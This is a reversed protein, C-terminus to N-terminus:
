VDRFAALLPIRAARIAPLVGGLFGIALALVLGQVVLDPTFSFGFVVQTFGSGLTSTTVGAFLAWTAVAGLVGGIAALLLAETMTGIFAPLGGFGIARLTAVERMRSDVSAYMTNVAGALAGLSMLIALPYGLLLITDTTGSAEGAYHARETKVDLKLRPDNDSFAKLQALGAAPDALRARVTQFGAGRQFLGQIVPADGWIESEFVTGGADFVGVVTWDSGGLRVTAGFDFGAFERMVARGVVLENRGTEFMRGEVIRIGDRVALAKEGVGRLPLNAKTGSARNLGDVIVYLEASLIPQGGADRAIGPADALLQVQERTVTSNLEADSGARLVLAVADSGSGKVTEEFGRALALFALLVGVVVGVAVVTALSQWLRQPISRLNMATVAAIQNWLRM